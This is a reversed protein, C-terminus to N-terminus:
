APGTRLTALLRNQFVSLQRDVVGACAFVVWEPDLVGRYPGYFEALDTFVRVLEAHEAVIRAVRVRRGARAADRVDVAGLADQPVAAIGDFLERFLAAVGLDGVQQEVPFQWRAVFELDPVLIDHRM